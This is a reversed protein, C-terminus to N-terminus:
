YYLISNVAMMVHRAGDGEIYRGHGPYLSRVDLKSLREISEKLRQFDSTPLDWRGIGGDAFVTDGSFLEGGDGYLSISGITHGPTELVKLRYAGLNIVDGEKLPYGDIPFVKLGFDRAGTSMEDGRKIADLDKEGAFVKLSFYEKLSLAGGIHDVHRHTLILYDPELGLESIAEITDASLEHIGSDIVAVKEDAVVYVNSSIGYGMIPYIRVM